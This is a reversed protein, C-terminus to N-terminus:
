GIAGSEVEAQWDRPGELSLQGSSLLQAVLFPADKDKRVSVYPSSEEMAVGPIPLGNFDVVLGDVEKVVSGMGREFAPNVSEVIETPYHEKVYATFAARDTVVFKRRGKTMTAKAIVRGDWKGAVTDGVELASLESKAADALEKARAAIM